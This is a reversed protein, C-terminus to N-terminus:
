RTPLSARCNARVLWVEGPRHCTGAPGLAELGDYPATM